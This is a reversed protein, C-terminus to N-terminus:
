HDAIADIRRRCEVPAKNLLGFYGKLPVRNYFGILIM